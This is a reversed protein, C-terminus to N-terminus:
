HLFVLLIQMWAFIVHCSTVFRAFDTKPVIDNSGGNTHAMVAFYLKGGISVPKDSAWHKGFDVAFYVALFTLFVVANYVVANKLFKAHWGALAYNTQKVM